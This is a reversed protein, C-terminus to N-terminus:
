VKRVDIEAFCKLGFLKRKMEIWFIYSLNYANKLRKM